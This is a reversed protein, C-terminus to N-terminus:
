FQILQNLATINGHRYYHKKATNSSTFRCQIYDECNPLPCGYRGDRIPYKIGPGRKTTKAPPCEISSNPITGNGQILYTHTQGLQSVRVAEMMSGDTGSKLNSLSQASVAVEYKWRDFELSLHTKLSAFSTFTEDCRRCTMVRQRIASLRSAIEDEGLPLDELPVFFPTTFSTYNTREQMCDSHLDRSLVHIHLHEMSPQAHIGILVNSEWDYDDQGDNNPCIANKLLQAAYTRWKTAEDRCRNLFEDDQFALVPHEVRKTLDRPLILLHVTAKPYLDKIIVFDDDFRVVNSCRSPDDLYKGLDDPAITSSKRGSEASRQRRFARTNNNTPLSSAKYPHTGRQIKGRETSAPMKYCLIECPPPFM